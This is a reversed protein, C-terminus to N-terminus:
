EQKPEEEKATEEAAPEQQEGAADEAPAEASEAAATGDEANAAPEAKEAAKAAPKANQADFYAIPYVANRDLVMTTSGTQIEFNGNEEDIGVIVGVIGGISKVRDGIKLANNMEAAQKQKKKQSYSSFWILGIFAVILVIILIISGWNTPNEDAFLFSLM